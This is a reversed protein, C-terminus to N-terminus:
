EPTFYSYFHFGDKDHPFWTQNTNYQITNYKEERDEVYLYWWPYYFAKPKNENKSLM